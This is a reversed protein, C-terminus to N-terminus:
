CNMFIVANVDNVIELGHQDKLSIDMKHHATKRDGGISVRQLSRDM